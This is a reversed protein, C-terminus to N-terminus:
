QKKYSFTIAGKNSGSTHTADNPDVNTIKIVAYTDQGRLKAIYIDNTAVDRITGSATGAAYTSKASEVTANAYDYTNAKVFMTSNGAGVNWGSVWASGSTNNSAQIMDKDTAADGLNKPLDAVLDWAGNGTAAQIHYIVGTKVTAMPTSSAVNITFTSSATVSNKDTVLVKVVTTATLGTLTLTFHQVTDNTFSTIASSPIENENTSGNTTVVTYFQIKSLKGPAKATGNIAYSGGSANGQTAGNDFSISPGPANSDKNCSAFFGAFLVFVGLLLVNFKKM